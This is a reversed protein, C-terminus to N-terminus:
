CAQRILLSEDLIAKEELKEFFPITLYSLVYWFIYHYEHVAYLELEFGTLLYMIMVKLTHHLVWTGVCALHVQCGVGNQDVAFTQAWLANLHQDQRDAEEQLAAFEELMRGLRDRLRARNHGLALILSLFPRFGHRFFIEVAERGQFLCTM